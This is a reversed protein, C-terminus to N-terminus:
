PFIELSLGLGFIALGVQGLTIQTLFKQGAGMVISMWKKETSINPLAAVTSLIEFTLGLLFSKDSFPFM